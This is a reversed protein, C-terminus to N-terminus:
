QKTNKLNSLIKSEVPSLSKIYIRKCTICFVLKYKITHMEVDMLLQGVRIENSQM